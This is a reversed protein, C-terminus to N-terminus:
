PIDNSHIFQTGSTSLGSAITDIIPNVVIAAENIEIIFNRNSIITTSSPVVFISITSNVASTIFVNSFSLTGSAYDITGINQFYQRQNNLVKSYIRINGNGDEDMFVATPIGNVFFPTSTVADEGSCHPNWVPNGFNVEFSTALGTEVIVDKQLKILTVNNLIAQNSNDINKMLQSLRFVQEFKGLQQTNFDVIANTVTTALENASLDTDKPNYYFNVTPVIQVFDPDIIEPEVTVVNETELLTVIEQKSTMSLIDGFKPKISLFVKGYVPPDNDEGGWVNVSDVDSFLLPLIVKYDDATVARKQAAWSLPARFKITDIEEIETGGAAASVTTLTVSGGGINGSFAFLKAGNAAEKHTVLYKLNVVNGIDLAAGLAGDGFYVEFLQGDIEKLFYVLSTGNIEVLGDSRQYSTYTASSPTDQVRVSLTDMDSDLNPIIFRQGDVVTYKNTIPTGEFITVNTFNYNGGQPQITIAELNYFNYSTGNVSATFVSFAPLTLTDPNGTPATVNINIVAQAGHSSSPTYGLEKALSVVSSRKTASDLFMENVALNAYVSNYHTNFALLDLLTSIGSGTFDFDSFESQGQLFNVLAAKINFFDLESVTIRKNIDSAM